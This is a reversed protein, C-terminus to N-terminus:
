TQRAGAGAFFAEEPLGTLERMSAGLAIALAELSRLRPRHEGHEIREIATASLPRESPCRRFLAARSLRKEVRLRMVREGIDGYEPTQM